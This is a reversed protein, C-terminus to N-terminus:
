TAELAQPAVWAASVRSGPQLQAPQVLLCTTASVSFRTPIQAGPGAAVAPGRDAGAGGGGM